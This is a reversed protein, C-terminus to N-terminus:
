ISGFAFSGARDCPHQRSSRTLKKPTNLCKAPSASPIVVFCERERGGAERLDTLKFVTHHDPGAAKSKIIILFHLLAACRSGLIDLCLPRQRKRVGAAKIEVCGELLRRVVLMVSRRVAGPVFGKGQIGDMTGNPVMEVRDPGALTRAQLHVGASVVTVLADRTSAGSRRACAM